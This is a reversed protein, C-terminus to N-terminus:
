TAHEDNPIEKQTRRVPTDLASRVTAAVEARSFPKTMVADGEQLLGQDRLHTAPYGSAFLVRMGGHRARVARALDKGTTGELVVDTILLAPRQEHHEALGLAEEGTEAELVAYGLGQLTRVLLGRVLADDEVVLITEHGGAAAPVGAVQPEAGAERCLPLYVRFTTGRGVQSYVSVHGDHRRVLAYVTSLGLGTSRGSGKTTFFPEFVHAQTEADMGEGTDSVSLTAYDVSGSEAEGAASFLQLAEEGSLTVRATQITLRGGRPMAEEANVVLHVVVQEMQGPDVSVPCPAPDTYLALQVEPKLTRRLMDRLGLLAKNLDMKRPSPRQQQSFALLQTTLRAAKKSAEIIEDVGDAIEPQKQTRDKLLEANQSIVLLMNTFDHAIGGALRGIAEMRQSHELQRALVTEHTVDRKVAVYNAIEGGADFVPSIVAEEEFLSGDKKRNIMHGRWVKGSRITSWLDSYFAETHKGSSLVHLNRGKMEEMRYGTLAEFSPNVFLVKGATDTIIISEAAQRVAAALRGAEAMAQEREAMERRLRVNAKELDATRERVLEELRARYAELAVEARKREMAYRISRGLQEGDLRGKVLYDQVGSAVARMGLGEDELGTLLIVPINGAQELAQEFTAAGQSDPLGCDLLVVDAGQRALVDLAAKLRDVHEVTFRFERVGSLLSRTLIADEEDDEVMLVRISDDKM